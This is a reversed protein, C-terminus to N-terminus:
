KTAIVKVMPWFLSSSNALLILPKRIFKPVLLFVLEVDLKKIEIKKFGANNHLIILRARTFSLEYGFMMHKSKFLKIHILEALQKLIPFDPINGWLQRYTLSGLNLHPVTNLCVGDKKLVRYLENVCIQTDKFHEIVGSGNILDVVDNKIPLNLIDAQILLYNKIKYKNLLKKAIKLSSYSFDVGIAIKCKKSICGGLFFMGCGIELFVTKKDIIKAQWLQKYDGEFKNKRYNEFDTLFKKNKLLEDYINNWKDLSLRMDSSNLLIDNKIVGDEIKLKKSCKNCKLINGTKKLDSKCDPCCLYDLYNKIM